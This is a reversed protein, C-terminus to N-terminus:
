PNCKYGLSTLFLNDIPTNNKAYQAAMVAIKLELFSVYQAIDDHLERQALEGELLAMSENYFRKM